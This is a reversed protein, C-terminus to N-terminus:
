GHDEEIRCRSEQERMNTKQKMRGRGGEQRRKGGKGDGILYERNLIM